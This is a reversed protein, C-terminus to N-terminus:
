KLMQEHYEELCLGSNYIQTAHFRGVYRFHWPEYEIGTIDTKNEPYRVIFGFLHANEALWKGDPQSGFEQGASGISHMDVCLGSQHESRGPYAIFAATLEDAKEKTNGAAIYNAVSNNFLSTQSDYSRYGSTITINTHGNARAEILMAEAAKAPYLRLQQVARDKRTDIADVLDPPIYLAELSNKQNILRLYEDIQNEPPNFYQEYESLDSLFNITSSSYQAVKILNEPTLVIPALATAANARLYPEANREVIIAGDEKLSINEFTNLLFDLPVYYINGDKNSSKVFSPADLHQKADNIYVASSGIELKLYEDPNKRIFSPETDDGVVLFELFNMIDNLPFYYMNNAFGTEYPMTVPTIKVKDIEVTDDANRIATEITYTFVSPSKIRTLNIYFLVAVVAFLTATFVIMLLFRSAYKIFPSPRKAMSYKFPVTRRVPTYSNIIPPPNRSGYNYNRNTPRLNQNPRRRNNNNRNNNNIKVM